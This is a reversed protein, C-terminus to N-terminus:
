LITCFFTCTLAQVSKSLKRRAKNSSRAESRNDPTPLNKLFRLSAGLRAPCALSMEISMKNSLELWKKFTVYIFQISNPYTLTIWIDLCIWFDCTSMTSYCGTIKSYGHRCCWTRSGEAMPWATPRSKLLEGWIMLGRDQQALMPTTSKKIDVGSKSVLFGYPKHFNPPVGGLTM